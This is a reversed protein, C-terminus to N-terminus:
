INIMSSSFARALASAATQWRSPAAEVSQAEPFRPRLSSLAPRQLEAILRRSCANPVDQARRLPCGRERRSRPGAWEGAPWSEDFQIFNIRQQKGLRKFGLDEGFMEQLRGKGTPPHVLFCQRLPPNRKDKEDIVYTLWDHESGRSRFRGKHATKPTRADSRSQLM